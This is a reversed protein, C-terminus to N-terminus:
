RYRSASGLRVGQKYCLTPVHYCAVVYLIVLPPISAFLNTEFVLFGFSALIILIWFGLRVKFWRYPALSGPGGVRRGFNYAWRCYLLTAIPTFLILAIALFGLWWPPDGGLMAAEGSLERV